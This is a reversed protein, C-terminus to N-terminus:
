GNSNLGEAECNKARGRLVHRNSLNDGNDVVFIEKRMNRKGM